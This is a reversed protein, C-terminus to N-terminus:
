DVNRSIGYTKMKKHLNTREIGLIKSAQSINWDSKELTALIYDKEVKNKLDKLSPEDELIPSFSTQSTNSSNTHINLDSLRVIGNSNDVMVVLREVVNELERVNGKWEANSLENVVEESFVKVQTGNEEAYKEAFFKILLPIDEKRERLPPLFIPVVNLRFYLDERFRGEKCEQQLNKNTAAIVRVDVKEIKESGVKQIEGEQLVRLVKAQVKLSMDGIEDLFITGGNAASFKGETERVSGTYAGKTAGFLESEILNEPIAACNVKIFPNNSNQSRAHIAKAILEKGTGSEGLVLVRSKTPAVKNIQIQINQMGQSVGIMELNGVTSKLNQNEKILNFRELAHEAVLLVKEKTFPKEIFDYAGLKTCEVAHEITGHGSIMVVSCEPYLEKIKQLAEIGSMGGMKIDLFILNPIEQTLIELAEEGSEALLVNNGQGLFIMQLSRRINKEDDVILIKPKM